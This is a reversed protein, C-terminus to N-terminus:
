RPEEAMVQLVDGLASSGLPTQSVAVYHDRLMPGNNVPTPEAAPPQLWLAALGIVLVASGAWALKPWWRRAPAPARDLEAAVREWLDAPPTQQPAEALVEGTRRLAALEDRCAACTDLHAAVQRHRRPRLGAELYEALTVANPHREM